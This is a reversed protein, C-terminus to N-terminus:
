YKELFIRLIEWLKAGEFWNELHIKNTVTYGAMNRPTQWTANKVHFGAQTAEHIVTAVQILFIVAPHLQTKDGNNFCRSEGNLGHDKRPMTYGYHVSSRYIDM